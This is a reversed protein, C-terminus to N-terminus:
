RWYFGELWDSHKFHNKDGEGHNDNDQDDHNDHLGAFKANRAAGGNRRRWRHDKGLYVIEVLPRPVGPPFDIRRHLLAVFARRESGARNVAPDAIFVDALSAHRDDLATWALQDPDFHFEELGECSVARGLEGECGFAILGGHGPAHAARIIEEGLCHM